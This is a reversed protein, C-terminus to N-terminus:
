GPLDLLVSTVRDTRETLVNSVPAPVFALEGDPISRALFDAGKRRRAVDNVKLRSLDRDM